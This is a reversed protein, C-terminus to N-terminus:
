FRSTSFVKWIILYDIKNNSNQKWICKYIIYINKPTLEEKLLTMMWTKRLHSLPSLLKVQLCSRQGDRSASFQWLFPMLLAQIEMLPKDLCYMSKFSWINSSIEATFTHFTETFGPWEKPALPVQLVVCPVNWCTGLDWLKVANLMGTELPM